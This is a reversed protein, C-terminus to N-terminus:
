KKLDTDKLLHIIKISKELSFNRAAIQYDKLFYPHIGLNKPNSHFNKSHMLIIKKFFNHLVSLTINIIPNKQRKLCKTLLLFQNILNKEGISNQLEFNNYEKSFGIYKEIEDVTILKGNDSKFSLKELAKEIM